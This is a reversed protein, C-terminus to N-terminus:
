WEASGASLGGDVYITQGTIFRAADSALFAVVPAIDDPEALRGLPTNRVVAEAREPYREFYDRTMATRVLGPGVANVTAGNRGWEIALSRVLGGLGAKSASYASRGPTAHIAVVSSTLIFRGGPRRLVLPAFVQLAIFTGYLNTEITARLADDPMELALHRSVTGANAVVTDLRFDLAELEDRVAELSRRDRVDAAFAPLRAAERLRGESLERRMSIVEADTRGIVAVQAGAGLFERLIALGIGSTGGVVLASRGALHGSSARRSPRTASAAM